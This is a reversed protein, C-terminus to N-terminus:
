SRGVDTGRSGSPVPSRRRRPGGDASPRFSRSGSGPPRRRDRDAPEEDLCSSRTSSATPRRRRPARLAAPSASRGERDRLRSAPDRRPDRRVDAVIRGPVFTEFPIYVDRSAIYAELDPVYFLMPRALTSYEFVISSYDTMLLDVTFLLDNVDISETSGDVLRDAFAEPIRVPAPRVPAHKIIVIADSSSRRPRPARRPRAVSPRLLRRTARRRPLDPRVPDDVPRADDPLGRTRRGPRRRRPRTSTGTWGRSGPRVVRAEPIGFAEAYFPVDDRLQRDRAHLEQPDEVMPATRRGQRHPQLRGDQVAGVRAVAPRDADASRLRTTSSRSTTTSSSSTRARSYARCACATVCAAGTPSARGSSPSCSTSPPRSRPGGDPRLRAPPEGCNRGPTPPSCSGATTADRWPPRRAFVKRFPGGPRGAATSSTGDACVHRLRLASRGGTRRVAVVVRDLGHGISGPSSPVGVAVARPLHLHRRRPRSGRPAM